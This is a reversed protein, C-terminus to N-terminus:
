QETTDHQAQCELHRHKERQRREAWNMVSYLLFWPVLHFGYDLFFRQLTESSATLSFGLLVLWLDKPEIVQKLRQVFFGGNSRRRSLDMKLDVEVLNLLLGSVRQQGPAPSQKTVKWPGPRCGIAYSYGSLYGQIAVM